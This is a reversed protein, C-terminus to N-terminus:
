KKLLIKALENRNNIWYTAELIDNLKDIKEKYKKILETPDYDISIFVNILEAFKELKISDAWKIQKESGIKNEKIELWKNDKIEVKM